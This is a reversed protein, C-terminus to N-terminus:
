FFFKNNKLLVLYYVGQATAQRLEDPTLESKRANFNQILEKVEGLAKRQEYSLLPLKETREIEMGLISSFLRQAFDQLEWEGSLGNHFFTYLAAINGHIMQANKYLEPRQEAEAHAHLVLLRELDQTVREFLRAVLLGNHPDRKALSAVVDAFCRLEVEAKALLESIRKKLLYRQACEIAIGAIFIGILIALLHKSM